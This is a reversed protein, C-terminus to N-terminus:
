PRARDYINVYIKPRPLNWTKLLSNFKDWTWSRRQSRRNLWKFLLKITKYQYKALMEYNDTVGCQRYYGQLKVRLKKILDQLPMTRRKRIWEKMKMLAAKFKKRSTKRKV